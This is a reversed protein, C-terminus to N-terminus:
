LVLPISRFPMRSWRRRLQVVAVGAGRCSIEMIRDFRTGGHRLFQTDESALIAFFLDADKFDAFQATYRRVFMKSPEDGNMSMVFAGLPAPEIATEEVEGGAAYLPTPEVNLAAIRGHKFKITTPQFEHLRPAIKLTDRNELSYTGPEGSKESLTFNTSALYAVVDNRSLTQGVFLRKKSAYFTAGSTNRAQLDVQALMEQAELHRKWVYISAAALVVGAAILAPFLASRAMGIIKVILKM